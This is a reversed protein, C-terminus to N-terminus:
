QRIYEGQWSSNAEPVRRCALSAAKIIFDNVSLKVSDAELDKNLSGRLRSLDIAILHARISCMLLLKQLLGQAPSVIHIEGFM